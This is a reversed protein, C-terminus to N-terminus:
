RTETEVAAVHAWFDREFKGWRADFREATREMYTRPDSERDACIIWWALGALAIVFAGLAGVALEASGAASLPVAAVLSLILVPFLTIPVFPTRM